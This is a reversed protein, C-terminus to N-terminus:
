FVVMLKQYKIVILVFKRSTYYDKPPAILESKIEDFGDSLSKAISDHLEAHKKVYMDDLMNLISAYELNIPEDM